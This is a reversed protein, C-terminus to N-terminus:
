RSGDKRENFDDKIWPLYLVVLAEIGDAYDTSIQRCAFITM